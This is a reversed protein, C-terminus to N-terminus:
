SFFIENSKVSHLLSHTLLVLVSEESLSQCASTDRLNYTDDREGSKLLNKLSQM